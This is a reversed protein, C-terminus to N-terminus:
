PKGYREQFQNQNGTKEALWEGLKTKKAAAALVVGLGILVGTKVGADDRDSDDDGTDDEIEAFKPDDDLGNNEVTQGNNEGTKMEDQSVIPENSIHLEGDGDKVRYDKGVRGKHDSDSKGTIHAEVSSRPGTYDQCAPCTYRGQDDPEQAEGLSGFRVM